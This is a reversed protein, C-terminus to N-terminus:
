VPEKKKTIGSLNEYFICPALVKFNEYKCALVINTTFRNPNELKQPVERVDAKVIECIKGVELKAVAEEMDKNNVILELLFRQTKDGGIDSSVWFKVVSIYEYKQTSKIAEAIIVLGHAALM